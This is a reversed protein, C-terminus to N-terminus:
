GHISGRHGKAHMLPKGIRNGSLSAATGKDTRTELLRKQRAITGYKILLIVDCGGSVLSHRKGDM